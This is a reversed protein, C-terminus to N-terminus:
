LFWSYKYDYNKMFTCWYKLFLIFGKIQYHNVMKNITSSQKINMSHYFYCTAWKYMKKHLLMKCGISIVIIFMIMVYHISSYKLTM